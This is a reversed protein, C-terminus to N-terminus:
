EALLIKTHVIGQHLPSNKNKLCVALAIAMCAADTDSLM